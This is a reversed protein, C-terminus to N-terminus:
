KEINAGLEDEIYDIIDDSLATVQVSAFTPIDYGAINEYVFGLIVRGVENGSYVLVTKFDVDRIIGRDKLLDIINDEQMDKFDRIDIEGVYDEDRVSDKLRRAVQGENVKNSENTEDDEEGVDDVVKFEVNLEIEEGDISIDMGAFDLFADEYDDVVNGVGDIVTNLFEEKELFEEVNDEDIDEDKIKGEFKIDVNDKEVVDFDVYEIDFIEGSVSEAASSMENNMDEEFKEVVELDEFSDAEEEEVIFSTYWMKDDEKYEWSDNIDVNSDLKKVYDRIDEVVKSTKHLEEDEEEFVTIMLGKNEEVPLIHIDKDSMDKWEEIKEELKKMDETEKNRENYYNVANRKLWMIADRSSAKLMGEFKEKLEEVSYKDSVYRYEIENIQISLGKGYREEVIEIDKIDKEEKKEELIVDEELDKEFIDEYRDIKGYEMLKYVVEGQYTIDETGIYEYLVDIMNELNSM